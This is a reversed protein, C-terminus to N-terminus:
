DMRLPLGLARESQPDFLHVADSACSLEIPQGMELALHGDLQATVRQGAVDVQVLTVAGLPEVVEIRGSLHNAMGDGTGPECWRLHEPRVGAVVQGSRGALGAARTEGARLRVERGALSRGDAGIDMKLFNMSPTGIFGAVFMNLPAEYLAQPTDVQQIRGGNMVVIRQGMTMAEVQDHTVYFTTVGLKRHLKVIEARTDVRLKADLNSLPEDMLFVQPQRVIARGLAVRQRQGGSLARPKRELLHEIDLVRAAEGVRREIEARAVKRLQLAFAMNEFVTMHPYLAYSQFVMAIDRLKPPVDSVDRGGINISGSTVSELGAIMRMTTTKGCGSPGVLVVFEGDRTTLNFDDVANPGEGRPSYNKVVNKLEVIAM